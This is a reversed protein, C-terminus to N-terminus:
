AKAIVAVEGAKTASEALQVAHYNCLLVRSSFGEQYRVTVRKDAHSTCKYGECM